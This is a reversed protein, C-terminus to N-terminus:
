TTTSAKQSQNQIFCGIELDGPRAAHWVASPVNGYSSTRLACVSHEYHRSQHNKVKPAHCSWHTQQMHTTRPDKARRKRSCWPRCTKSSGRAKGIPLQGSASAAMYVRASSSNSIRSTYGMSTENNSIQTIALLWGHRSGGSPTKSIFVTWYASGGSAATRDTDGGHQHSKRQDSLM